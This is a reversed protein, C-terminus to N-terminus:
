RNGFLLGTIPGLWGQQPLYDQRSVGANRIMDYQRRQNERVEDDHKAEEQLRYAELKMSRVEAKRYARSVSRLKKLHKSRKKAAGLYRSAAVRKDGDLYCM